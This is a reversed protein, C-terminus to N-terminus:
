PQRIRTLLREAGRRASFEAVATQRAAHGMRGRRQPDEALSRIREALSAADRQPVLYGDVGDEIMDPTGGIISAVPVLGCAMAEMVAVPAAEGLGCSPLLLVHSSQLAALVEDESRSGHLTVAQALHLEEVGARVQPEHPGSGLIDLHVAVGDDLLRRVAELAYHHGKAANLRAVMICRLAHQPETKLAPVFHEPDIGMPCYLLRSEDVGAETRLQELLPTTVAAVFKAGALKQAHHRGYVQLDGHLTASYTPGGLFRALAVVHLADACSHVHVHTVGNRQAWRALHAAHPLLALIRSFDRASLGDLGRVYDLAQRVQRSNGLLTRLAQVLPPPHLYTTEAAAQQSFAHRGTDVSPRRTSVIRVEAGLARLERIERWFFAHTQSPFEPVLYGLAGM